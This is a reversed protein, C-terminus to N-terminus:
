RPLLAKLEDVTAAYDIATVKKDRLTMVIVKDVAQGNKLKAAMAKDYILLIAYNSKRFDPMAFTNLIVTPMGSVDAVAVIRKQALFGDPQDAMFSKFTHGTEKTFVFILKRTDDSLTHPKDFQDPLTLDITSGVGFPKNDPLISLHYKTPDYHSTGNIAFLAGVGLVILGLLTVVIKKIM